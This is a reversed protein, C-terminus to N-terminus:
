PNSVRGRVEWLGRRSYNGFFSIEAPAPLLQRMDWMFVEMGLLDDPNLMSGLNQLPRQAGLIAAKVQGPLGTRMLPSLCNHVDVPEFAPRGFPSDMKNNIMHKLQSDILMRMAVYGAAVGGNTYWDQELLMSIVGVSAWNSTPPGAPTLIKNNPIPIKMSGVPAPIAITQGRGVQTVGLNGHHGTAPTYLLPDTTAVRLMDNPPVGPDEIPPSDLGFFFNWMYPEARGWFDGDRICTLNDLTITPM